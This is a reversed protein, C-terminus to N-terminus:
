SEKQYTVHIIKEAKNGAKDTATVKVEVSGEDVGLLIEFTLDP